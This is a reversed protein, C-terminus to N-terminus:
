RFALYAGIVLVLNWFLMDVLTRIMARDDPRTAGLRNAALNGPLFFLKLVLSMAAGLISQPYM